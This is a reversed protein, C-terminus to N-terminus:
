PGVCVGTHNDILNNIKKNANVENNKSLKKLTPNNKASM